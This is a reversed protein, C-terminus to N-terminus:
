ARRTFFRGIAMERVIERISVDVLTRPDREPTNWPNRGKTRDFVDYPDRDYDFVFSPSGGTTLEVGIVKASSAFRGTRNVLKPSRM